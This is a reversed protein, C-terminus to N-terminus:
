FYDQREVTIIKNNRKVNAYEPRINMLDKISKRTSSVARAELIKGIDYLALVMMGEIPKNVLYAGIASICILASEDITKNKM